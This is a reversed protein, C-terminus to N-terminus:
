HLIIKTKSPHEIPLLPDFTEEPPFSLSQGSQAPTDVSKFFRQVRMGVHIKHQIGAKIIMNKLIQWNHSLYSSPFKLKVDAHDYRTIMLLIDCITLVFKLM